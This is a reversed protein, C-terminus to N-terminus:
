STIVKGELNKAQADDEIRYSSWKTSFWGQTTISRVVDTIGDNDAATTSIVAFVGRQGRRDFTVCCVSYLETKLFDDLFRQAMENTPLHFRLGATDNKM